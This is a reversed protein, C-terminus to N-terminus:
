VIIKRIINGMFIHMYSTYLKCLNVYTYSISFHYAIFNHKLQKRKISILSIFFPSKGRHIIRQLM